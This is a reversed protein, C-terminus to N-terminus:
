ATLGRVHGGHADATVLMRDRRGRWSVPRLGYEVSTHKLRFSTLPARERPRRRGRDGVLASGVRPAGLIAHIAFAPGHAEAFRYSFTTLTM